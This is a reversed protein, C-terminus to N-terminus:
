RGHRLMWQVSGRRGQEPGPRCRIVALVLQAQLQERVQGGVGVGHPAGTAIAVERARREDDVVPPLPGKEGVMWADPAPHLHAPVALRVVGRHGGDGEPFRGLLAADHAELQQGVGDVDVDV